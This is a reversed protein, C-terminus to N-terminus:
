QEGAIRLGNARLEEHGRRIMMALEKPLDITNEPNQYVKASVQYEGKANMKGEISSQSLGETQSVM